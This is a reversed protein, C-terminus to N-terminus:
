RGPAAARPLPITGLPRRKRVWLKRLEEAWLVASGVAALALAVGPGFPVTHLVRAFPPWYVVAVQLLNGLLLGAILWRNKLVSLSLASKTESRCNLVNFWECIALLTFTETQVQAAPVGAHTRALFWGLTSAVIATTMVAMRHLLIRTLLPEGRAIPPRSMEDGEAPEMVLNVTVLGETVLNNWLIQVAAFPPPYGLALCAILVAVEASSTSFLLLVSKKLNRYVVRGEEVAAVITSFDDDVLVIKAAEKAVETGSRGMAIGVDAQLLAPADNVGDGTMAVVAGRSQLARVIRLKQAPHVRAFVAISEIRQALTADDMRELAPGDVAEEDARAISLQRAIALGTAAHDGTVMVTRIGASACRAVALEVEARPPDRQGVLGLLRVRGALAAFGREADLAVGDVAGIALVRLAQEALRQAESELAAQLAPTALPPEGDDRAGAALRAVAEPAGKLWVRPGHPGDHQTAMLKLAPDFPLEGRRPAAAREERAALGAKAALTVLAVETPDGVPRWKPEERRPGDLQADNCLLGAAILERLPADRAPEAPHPAGEAAGSEASIAGAPEFGSGDVTFRRGDALVLANVTMENKTLTGTKDTCIVTTSGLTEVASLRRVVARRKAMRQVGIALAITSAVPLGEPVMGVVQSIAVMAVEGLPLGRWWGIAFVLLLLLAAAAVVARGFQAIRRELPTKPQEAAGAMEAIAGLETAAGTAVVLARARGTTVHTGAHLMSAREALPTAAPVPEVRKEVATSEGTLAAEAVQLAVGELLRADAGIADGADLVLLDGPVLERAAIRQEGGDRVVRASQETLRRLAALSREARGEQFTGILANLLVVVAIVVADSTEGLLLALAAAAFLLYILPNRFQSFFLAALSRRGQEPLANPGHRALRAAAEAGTLGRAPDAALEAAVAAPPEAHWARAAAARDVGSAM